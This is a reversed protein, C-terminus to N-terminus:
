IAEYSKARLEAFHKKMEEQGIVEGREIEELAEDIMANEEATFEIVPLDPQGAGDLLAEGIVRQTDQPLEIIKTVAQAFVIDM